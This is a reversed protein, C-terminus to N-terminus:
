LICPWSGFSDNFMGFPHNKQTLYVMLLLRTSNDNVSPKGIDELLFWLLQSCGAHSLVQSRTYIGLLFLLLSLLSRAIPPRWSVSARQTVHNPLTVHCPVATCSTEADFSSVSPCSIVGTQHLIIQLDWFTNSIYQSFAANNVMVVM